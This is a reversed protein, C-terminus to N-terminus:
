TRHLAGLLCLSSNYHRVHFLIYIINQIQYRLAIGILRMEFVRDGLNQCRDDGKQLLMWLVLLVLDKLAHNLCVADDRETHRPHIVIALNLDIAAIAHLHRTRKARILSTQTKMRTDREVDQLEKGKLLHELIRQRSQRDASALASRIKVRMSAAIVLDHVEALAKHRLEIAVNPRVHIDRRAIDTDAPTLNAIEETLVLADTVRIIRTNQRALTRVVPAAKRTRLCRPVTQQVEHLIHKRRLADVERALRDDDGARAVNRDIRNLLCLLKPRLDHGAGVRIAVDVIRVANIEYRDLLDLFNTACTDLLICRGMRVRLVM